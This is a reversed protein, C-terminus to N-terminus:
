ARAGGQPSDHTHHHHKSGAQNSHRCGGGRIGDALWQPGGPSSAIAQSMGLAAVERSVREWRGGEGVKGGAVAGPGSAM